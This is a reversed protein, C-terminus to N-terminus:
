HDLSLVAIPSEGIRPRSNDLGYGPSHNLLQGPELFDKASIGHAVLVLDSPV